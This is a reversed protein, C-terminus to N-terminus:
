LDMDGKHLIGEVQYITFTELAPSLEFGRGRLVSNGRSITVDGEGRLLEEQQSWKLVNTRLSNGDSTRVLVNQRLTANRSTTDYLGSDATLVTNKGDDSYYTIKVNELDTSGGSIQEVSNAELEWQLKDDKSQSYRVDQLKQAVEVRQKAKKATPKDPDTKVALREPKSSCSALAFAAVAGITFLLRLM